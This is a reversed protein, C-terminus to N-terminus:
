GVSWICHLKGTEKSQLKCYFTLLNLRLDQLERQCVRDDQEIIIPREATPNRSFGERYLMDSPGQEVVSQRIDYDNKVTEDYKKGSCSCNRMKHRYKLEHQGVNFHLKSTFARSSNMYWDLKCKSNM